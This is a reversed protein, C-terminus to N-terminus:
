EVLETYRGGAAVWGEAGAGDRVRYWGTGKELLTLRQGETLTKVVGATTMPGSRMNLGETLVTVYPKADGADAPVDGGVGETTGASGATPTTEGAPSEGAPVSGGSADRYQSLYGWVLLAILVLLVWPIVIKVARVGISDGGAYGGGAM